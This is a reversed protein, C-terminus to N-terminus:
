VSIEDKKKFYIIFVFIIGYFLSMLLSYSGYSLDFLINGGFVPTIFILYFPYQLSAISDLIINDFMAHEFTTIFFVLIGSIVGLVAFVKLKKSGRRSYLLLLFMFLLTVLLNFGDVKLDPYMISPMLNVSFALIYSAILFLLHKYKM